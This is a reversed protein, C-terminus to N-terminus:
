NISICIYCKLFTSYILIFCILIFWYEAIEKFCEKTVNEIPTAANRQKWGDIRTIKLEWGNFIM